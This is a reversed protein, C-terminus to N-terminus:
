AGHFSASPAATSAPNPKRSAEGARRAFGATSSKSPKVPHSKRPQACRASVGCTSVSPSPMFPSGSQSPAQLTLVMVTSVRTDKLPAMSLQFMCVWDQSARYMKMRVGAAHCGLVTM